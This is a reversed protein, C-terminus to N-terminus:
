QPPRPGELSWWLQSSRAQPTEDVDSKAIKKEMSVKLPNNRNAKVSVTRKKKLM